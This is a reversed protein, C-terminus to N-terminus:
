IIKFMIISFGIFDYPESPEIYKGGVTYIYPLKETAKRNYFFPSPASIAINRIFFVNKPDDDHNDGHFAVNQPCPFM